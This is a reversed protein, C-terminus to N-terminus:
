LLDKIIDYILQPVVEFSYPMYVREYLSHAGKGWPGINVVQCDLARMADFDLTYGRGFLPMNAVLSAVATEVEPDLRVFSLDSIYPYFDRVEISESGSVAEVQQRVADLVAGAQPKVHPYFPPAFFVIIAPGKINAERVLRAVILRSKEPLDAQYALQHAVLDPANTLRDSETAIDDMLAALPDDAQDLFSGEWGNVARVRRCLQEFTLVLPTYAPPQPIDGSFPKWRQMRTDLVAQLADQAERVILHMVDDPTQTCTLWNICVLSETVTQASYASKLDRMRLSIPPVVRETTGDQNHWRDSLAPNLNIRSILEAAIHNADIGRFPEGVHTPVGLIYFSPLLKGVTGAYVARPAADPTQAIYSGNRQAVYDTNIIGLYRLNLSERLELLHPIASRIGLSENEEDPCALFLVNGALAEREHWLRRLLAIAIAIGSKMDLSGRGFMWAPEEYGDHLWRAQLDDWADEDDSSHRTQLAVELARPLDDVDFAITEDGMLAMLGEFEAVGVTDYHGMIIVTKGENSPHTGTLLCAVTHRGDGTPWLIPQLGTSDTLLKEITGACANEGEVDPSITPLSLLIETFDRVRDFWVQTGLNEFLM